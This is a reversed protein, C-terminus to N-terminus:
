VNDDEAHPHNVRLSAILQQTTKSLEGDEILDTVVKGIVFQAQESVLFTKSVGQEYMLTKAMGAWDKVFQDQGSEALNTMRGIVDDM